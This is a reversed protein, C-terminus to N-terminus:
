FQRYMLSYILIIIFYYIGRLVSNAYVLDIIAVVDIHPLKTTLHVLILCFLFSINVVFM